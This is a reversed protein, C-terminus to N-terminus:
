LRSVEILFDVLAASLADVKAQREREGERGSNDQALLGLEELALKIQSSSSHKLSLQDRYLLDALQRESLGCVDGNPRLNLLQCVGERFGQLTTMRVFSNQIANTFVMPDTVAAHMLQAFRLEFSLYSMSANPARGLSRKIISHVGETSREVVRM